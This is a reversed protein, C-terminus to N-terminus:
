DDFFSNLHSIKTCVARLLKYIFYFCYQRLNKIVRLKTAFFVFISCSFTVKKLFLISHYLAPFLNYIQICFILLALSGFLPSAVVAKCSLRRRSVPFVILITTLLIYLPSLSTSHSLTSLFLLLSFHSLSFPQSFYLTKYIHPFSIDRSLIYFLSDSYLFTYLSFLILPLHSYRFFCLFSSPLASKNFLTEKQVFSSLYLFFLPCACIRDREEVRM